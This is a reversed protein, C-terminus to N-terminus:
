LIDLAETQQCAFLLEEVLDNDDLARSIAVGGIMLVAQKIAQSRHLGDKQLRKILGNFVTTYAQRVQSDRQSIDTTLFALPCHQGTGAVHEKTLYGSVIDQVSAEKIHQAAAMIAGAVISEAYLDSKTNFHAYFAGRTLGADAMIENIGINDFGFQTFLKAASAVIRQRTKEKHENDWAM